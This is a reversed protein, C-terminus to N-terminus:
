DKTGELVKGDNDMSLDMSYKELQGEEIWGRAFSRKTSGGLREQKKKKRIKPHINNNWKCDRAIRCSWISAM